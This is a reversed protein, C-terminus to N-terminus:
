GDIIWEEDEFKAFDKVDGAYYETKLGLINDFIRSIGKKEKYKIVNWEYVYRKYSKFTSDYLFNQLIKKMLLLIQLNM